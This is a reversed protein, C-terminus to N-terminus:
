EDYSVWKKSIKFNAFTVLGILLALIWGVSTAIGINSGGGDNFLQRYLYYVITINAHDPIHLDGTMVQYRTFEQLSGIIGTVLLYFVTPSIAPLTIKFFKTFMGAGDMEAAEYTNRNINTMAASLLIINFGTGSWLMVFFMVLRFHHPSRVFWNIVDTRERYVGMSWLASNLIGPDENFIWQWMFAIAVMSCVYPIFFVTQFLKKFRKVRYLMVSIFVSVAICIFTTFVVFLTNLVSQWFEPDKLVYEFNQFGVFEVIQPFYPNSYDSTLKLGPFQNLTIYFSLALPIMGFILFGLIPIGAFIWGMVEEKNTWPEKKEKAPRPPAVGPEGLPATGDERAAPANEPMEGNELSFDSM